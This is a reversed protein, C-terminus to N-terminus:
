FIFIVALERKEKIWKCTKKVSIKKLNQPLVNRFSTYSLLVSFFFVMDIKM